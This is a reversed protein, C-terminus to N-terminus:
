GQINALHEFGTEQQQPHEESTAMEMRKSHVDILYNNESLEENCTVANESDMLTIEKRETSEEM